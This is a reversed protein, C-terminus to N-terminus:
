SLTGKQAAQPRAAGAPLLRLLVLSHRRLECTEGSRHRSAGPGTNVLTRWTGMQPLTFTCPEAGANLLLLLTEGAVARGRDDIEDSAEGRILM